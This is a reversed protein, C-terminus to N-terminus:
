PTPKKEAAATPKAPAAAPKPKWFDPDAKIWDPSVYSQKPNVSFLENHWSEIAEASLHDLKKMGDEGIADAFKKGNAFNTDIDAMSNDASLAVFTDSEGGFAIQFMAWHAGDGAKDHTAKVLKAAERFEATHGPRVEFVEVEMYRAQSIDAHPHYSLEDDRVYVVSDAEDLLEGDGIGARELDGALTPNKAVIKNAKEWDAFSDYFTFYLARAKGSMSKFGEYYVPFKARTMAQVFASETKDHAADGKYPKTYERTIQLIKPPTAADQAASLSAGTIAISLGFLIPSIKKM